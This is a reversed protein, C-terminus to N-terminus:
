RCVTPSSPKLHANAKAFTTYAFPPMIQSALIETPSLSYFEPLISHADDHYPEIEIGINCYMKQIALATNNALTISPLAM